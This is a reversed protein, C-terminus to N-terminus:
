KSECEKLYRIANELGEISDGLKGIGLNCKDCLWGRFENTKHDHDICWIIPVEYCCPCVDPKPPATKKMRNRVKQQERICTRCRTDLRDKHM